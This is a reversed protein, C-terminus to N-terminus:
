QLVEARTGYDVMLKNLIQQETREIQMRTEIQPLM